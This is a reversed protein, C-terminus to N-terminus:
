SDYHEAPHGSSNSFYDGLIHGLAYGTGNFFHVIYTHLRRFVTWLLCDGLPCFYQAFIRGIQDVQYEPVENM